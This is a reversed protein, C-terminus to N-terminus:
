WKSRRVEGRIVRSINKNAMKEKSKFDQIDKIEKTLARMRRTNGFRGILEESYKSM